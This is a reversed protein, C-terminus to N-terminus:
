LAPRFLSSVFPASLYISFALLFAFGAIEALAGVSVFCKMECKGCAETPM